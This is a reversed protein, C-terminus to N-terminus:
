NKFYLIDPLRPQLNKDNSDIKNNAYYIIDLMIAPFLVLAGYITIISRIDFVFYKFLFINCFFIIPLTFIAYDEHFLLAGLRCFILLFITKKKRNIKKNSKIKTGNSKIKQEFFEMVISFWGISFRSLLLYFAM